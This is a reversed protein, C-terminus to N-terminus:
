KSYDLLYITPKSPLSASNIKLSSSHPREVPFAGALFQDVPQLPVNLAPTKFHMPIVILPQLDQVLRIAQQADITYVGGVPILLIDIRSLAARQEPTLETQGLDGLDAIRLGSMEWVFIMNGGRENGQQNDHFSPIGHFVLGGAGTEGAKNVVVPKGKFISTASHDPHSHSVTVVRPHASPMKYGISSNFPDTLVSHGAKDHFSFCSQGYWRIHVDPATAAGKKPLPMAEQRGEPTGVPQTSFPTQLPTETASATGALSFLSLSTLLICSLDRM